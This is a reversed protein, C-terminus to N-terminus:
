FVVLPNFASIVTLTRVRRKENVSIDITRVNQREPTNTYVDPLMM